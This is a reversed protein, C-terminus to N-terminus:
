QFESKYARFDKLISEQVDKNRSFMTNYTICYKLFIYLFIKKHNFYLKIKFMIHM